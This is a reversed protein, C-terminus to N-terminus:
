APRLAPQDLLWTTSARVLYWNGTWRYTQGDRIEVLDISVVAADGGTQSAQDRLLNLSTTDAFRQYVNVGPPYAAQMSPSWLRVAADFQHQQVLRYFDAVAAEPTADVAPSATPPPNTATASGMSPQPSQPVGSAPRVTIATSPSPKPAAALSAPSRHHPATVFGALFGFALVAAVFTALLMWRREM